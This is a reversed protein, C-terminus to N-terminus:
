FTKETLKTSRAFIYIYILLVLFILASYASAFGYTWDRQQAIAPSVSVFDYIRTILIDYQDNGGTLLYVLNFNNFTWISTLLVSPLVTPRIMPLVIGFLTQFWNAGDILAAEFISESITQLASISVLMIFPFAYWASVFSVIFFGLAPDGFWGSSKTVGSIVTIMQDLVGGNAFFSNWLLGSIFTPIIWPLMFVVQYFSKLGIGKEHLIVAIVIGLVTQIVVALLTYLITFGLTYYFNQSVFYTVHPVFSVIYHKQNGTEYIRILQGELSLKKGKKIEKNLGPNKLDPMDIWLTGTVLMRGGSIDRTPYLVTASIDKSIKQEMIIYDSPSIYLDNVLVQTIQSSTGMANFSSKTKLYFENEHNVNFAAPAQDYAKKVTKLKVYKHNSDVIRFDGLIRTFNEVGIFHRSIKLDQIVKPFATFGLFVSFLIPIFVLVLMGVIGPMIFLYATAFNYITNLFKEFGRKRSFKLLLLFGFLTGILWGTFIFGISASRKKSASERDEDVRNPPQFLFSDNEVNYEDKNYESVLKKFDYPTLNLNYNKQLTTRVTNLHHNYSGTLRDSNLQYDTNAFNMLLILTLATYILFSGFLSIKQVLTNKVVGSIIYAGIAFVLFVVGLLALKGWISFTWINIKTIKVTDYKGMRFRFTKLYAKYLGSQTDQELMQKNRFSRNGDQFHTNFGRLNSVSGSKTFGADLVPGNYLLIQSVSPDKSGLESVIAIMTENYGPAIEPETSKITRGDESKYELTLAKDKLYNVAFGVTELIAKSQKVNTAEYLRKMRFQYFGIAFIFVLIMGGLMAAFPNIWEKKGEFKFKREYFTKM